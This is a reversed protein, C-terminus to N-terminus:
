SKVQGSSVTPTTNWSDYINKLYSICFSRYNNWWRAHLQDHCKNCLWVLQDPDNRNPWYNAQNWYYTHHIQEINGYECLICYGDRARVEYAVEPDIKRKTNKRRNDIMKKTFMM